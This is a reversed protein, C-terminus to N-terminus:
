QHLSIKDSIQFTAIDHYLNIFHAQIRCITVDKYSGQSQRTVVQAFPNQLVRARSVVGGIEGNRTTQEFLQCHPQDNGM